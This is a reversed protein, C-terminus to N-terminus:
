PRRGRRRSPATKTGTKTEALSVVVDPISLDIDYSEKVHKFVELPSRQGMTAEHWHHHTFLLAAEFERYRARKWFNSLLPWGQRCFNATVSLNVLCVM